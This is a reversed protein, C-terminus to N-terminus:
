SCGTPAHRRLVFHIRQFRQHIRRDAAEPLAARLQKAVQGRDARLRAGATTFENCRAAPRRRKRWRAIPAIEAAHGAVISLTRFGYRASVAARCRLQVQAALDFAHLRRKEPEPKAEHHRM